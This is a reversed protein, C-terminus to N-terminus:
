NSIGGTMSRPAYPQPQFALARRFGQKTLMLTQRAHVETMITPRSLITSM